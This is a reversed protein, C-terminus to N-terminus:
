TRSLCYGVIIAVAGVWAFAAAYNTVFLYPAPITAFAFGFFILLNQYHHEVDAEFAAKQQGLRVRKRFARYGALLILLCALVSGLLWARLLNDSHGALFVDALVIGITGCAIDCLSNEIDEIIKIQMEFVEYAFFCVLAITLLLVEPLGLALAVAAFIVGVVVHQLSWADVYRGHGFGYLINRDATKEFALRM